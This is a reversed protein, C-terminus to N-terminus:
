GANRNRGPKDKRYRQRRAEKPDVRLPRYIEVRDRERLPTDLERAKGWIGVRLQTQQLGHRDLLGSASLADSLCAGTSLSLFVLEMHGPQASYAVEVQLRAPPEVPM